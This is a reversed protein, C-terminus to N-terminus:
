LDVPQPKAWIVPDVKWVPHITCGLMMGELSKPSELRYTLYYLLFQRFYREQRKALEHVQSCLEVLKHGEFASNLLMNICYEENPFMLMVKTENNLQPSSLIDESELRLPKRKLFWYVIYAMEKIPNPEDTPHYNKLRLLDDFADILAQELYRSSIDIVIDESTSTKVRDGIAKAWNLCSVSIEASTQDFKEELGPHEDFWKRKSLFAFHM